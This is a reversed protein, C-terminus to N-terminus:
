STQAAASLFDDHSVHSSPSGDAANAGRSCSVFFYPSSRGSKLTFEGFRLVDCEICFQLFEHRWDAMTNVSRHVTLRCTSFSGFAHDSSLHDNALSPQVARADGGRPAEVSKASKERTPTTTGGRLHNPARTQYREALAALRALLGFTANTILHMWVECISYGTHDPYSAQLKITLSRQHM